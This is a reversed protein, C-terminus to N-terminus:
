RKSTKTKKRSPLEEREDSNHKRAKKASEQTDALLLNLWSGALNRHWRWDIANKDYVCCFFARTYVIIAAVDATISCIATIWRDIRRDSRTIRCAHILTRRVDAEGCFLQMVQELLLLLGGAARHTTGHLTFAHPRPNGLVQLGPAGTRRAASASLGHEWGCHSRFFVRERRIFV